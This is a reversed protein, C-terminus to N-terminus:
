ACIMNECPERNKAKRLMGVKMEVFEQSSAISSNKSVPKPPKVVISDAVEPETAKEEETANSSTPLEQSASESDNEDNVVANSGPQKRPLSKWTVFSSPVIAVLLAVFCFSCLICRRRQRRRKQQVALSQEMRSFHTDIEDVMSEEDEITFVSGDEYEDISLPVFDRSSSASITSPEDAQKQKGM